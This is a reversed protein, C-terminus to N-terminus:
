SDEDKSKEETSGEHLEKPSFLQSLKDVQEPTVNSSKRLENLALPMNKDNVLTISGMQQGERTAMTVTAAKNTHLLRTGSIVVHTDPRSIKQAVEHASALIRALFDEIPKEEYTLRGKKGAGLPTTGAHAYVLVLNNTTVTAAVPSIEDPTAMDNVVVKGGKSQAYKQATAIVSSPDKATPVTVSTRKRSTFIVAALFIGALLVGFLSGLFSLSIGLDTLYALLFSAAVSQILFILLLNLWLRGPAYKYAFITFLVSSAFLTVIGISYTWFDLNAGEGYATIVGFLGAGGAILLLNFMWVLAVFAWPLVFLIANLVVIAVAAVGAVTPLDAGLRWSAAVIVALVIMSTLIRDKWSVQKFRASVKALLGGPLATIKKAM